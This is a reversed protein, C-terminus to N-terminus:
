VELTEKLPNWVSTVRFRKGGRLKVLAVGAKANEYYHGSKNLNQYEKVGDIIAMMIDDNMGAYENPPFREEVRETAHTSFFVKNQFFPSYKKFYEEPTLKNQLMM